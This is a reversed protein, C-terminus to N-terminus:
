MYIRLWYDTYLLYIFLLIHKYKNISRHLINYLVWDDFICFEVPIEQSEFSVVTFCLLPHNYSLFSFPNIKEHIYPILWSAYYICKSVLIVTKSIQISIFLEICLPYFHFFFYWTCTCQNIFLVSIIIEPM